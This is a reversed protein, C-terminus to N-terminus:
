RIQIGCVAEPQNDCVIERTRVCLPHTPKQLCSDPHDGLVILALRRWGRFHELNELVLESADSIDLYFFSRHPNLHRLGEGTINTGQLNISRLQIHSINALDADSIDSESLDIDGIHTLSEDELYPMVSSSQKRMRLSVFWHPKPLEINYTGQAEGLRM